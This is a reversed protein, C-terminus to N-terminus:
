GWRAALSVETGILTVIGPLSSRSLLDHAQPNSAPVLASPPEQSLCLVDRASEHEWMLFLNCAAESNGM